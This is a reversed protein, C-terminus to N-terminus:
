GWVDSWDDPDGGLWAPRLTQVHHVSLVLGEDDHNLVLGSFFAFVPLPRAHGTISVEVSGAEGSLEINWDDQGGVHFLCMEPISSLRRLCFRRVADDDCSATVLLRATEAAAQEMVMRTFLLCAPQILMGLVLLITPLMFAAEVSAQGDVRLLLPARVESCRWIRFPASRMPDQSRM